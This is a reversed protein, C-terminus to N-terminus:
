KIAYYNIKMHEPLKIALKLSFIDAFNIYKNPVKSPTKDAKLHTIQDKRSPYM